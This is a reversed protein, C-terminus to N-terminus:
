CSWSGVPHIREEKYEMMEFWYEDKVFFGDVGSNEVKRSKYGHEKMLAIIERGQHEPPFKTNTYGNEIIWAGVTYSSFPFTKLSPLEQGEVDLSVLLNHGINNNPALLRLSSLLM